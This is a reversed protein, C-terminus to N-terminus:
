DESKQRFQEKRKKRRGTAILSNLMNRAALQEDPDDMDKIAESMANMSIVKEVINNIPEGLEHELQEFTDRQSKNEKELFDIDDKAKNLKKTLKEVEKKTEKLQIKTEVAASREKSLNRIYEKYMKEKEALFRVAVNQMAKDCRERYEELSEGKQPEPAKTEVAENLVSYFKKIDRNKAVSYKIGRELGFEKMYEAYSTHMKSLSGRGNVYHFANLHGKEDIPTVIAHIHPSSEDMHLTASVINNGFKEKNENFTKDLWEMSKKKWADVDISEAREQPVALVVSIAYVADSRINRARYQELSKLRESVLQTYNKGETNILEENLITKSGDANLVEMERKDHRSANMLAGKSLKKLSFVAHAM